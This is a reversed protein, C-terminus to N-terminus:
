SGRAPRGPRRCGQRLLNQYPPPGRPPSRRRCPPPLSERRWSRLRRCWSRCTKESQSVSLRARCANNKCGSEQCLPLIAPTGPSAHNVGGVRLVGHVPHVPAGFLECSERHHKAEGPALPDSLLRQLARRKACHFCCACLEPWKTAEEQRSVHCGVRPGHCPRP